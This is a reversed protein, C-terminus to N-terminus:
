GDIGGITVMYAGYQAHTLANQPYLRIAKEYYPIALAYGKTLRAYLGVLVLGLPHNPFRNLTYKIDNLAGGYEGKSIQPLINKTHYSEVLQLLQITERSQKAAFYDQNILEGADNRQADSCYPPTLCQSSNSTANTEQAFGISVSCFLVCFANITIVRIM